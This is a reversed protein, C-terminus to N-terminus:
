GHMRATPDDYTSLEKFSDEPKGSPWGRRTYALGGDVFVSGCKCYKFDHQHKSEIEDGCKLCKAANRTLKSVM